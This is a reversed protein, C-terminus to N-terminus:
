SGSASSLSCARGPAVGGNAVGAGEEKPELLSLHLWFSGFPTSVSSITIGFISPDDSLEM